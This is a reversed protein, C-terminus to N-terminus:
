HGHGLIRQRVEIGPDHEQLHAILEDGAAQLQADDMPALADFIFLARTTDDTLGTRRCQRWNWRRCTVGSSDTWIVEGPDPNEIVVEGEATTDFEETGEARLLRPSSTYQDIDEGGIPVQHTVCIANYIDTLRNIRPLGKSARRTLAELSNRTRSPKAGFAQYAERWAAIHPLEAVPTDALLEAAHAEAKVLLNESVNDSSAPSLGDVAILLVRYDPRLAQVSEDISAGALLDASSPATM